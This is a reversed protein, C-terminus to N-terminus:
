FYKKLITEKKRGGLPVRRTLIRSLNISKQKIHKSYVIIEHWKINAVIKSINTYFLMVIGKFYYIENKPDGIHGLPVIEIFFVDTILSIKGKRPLGLL